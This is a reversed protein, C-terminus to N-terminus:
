AAPGGVIAFVDDPRQFVVKVPPLQSLNFSAQVPKGAHFSQAATVSRKVCM